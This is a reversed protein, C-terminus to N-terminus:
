SRAAQSRDSESRSDDGGRIQRHPVAERRATGLISDRPTSRGTRGGAHQHRIERVGTRTAATLSRLSASRQSSIRPDNGKAAAPPLRSSGGQARRAQYGRHYSANRRAPQGATGNSLAPHHPLFDGGPALCRGAEDPPNSVRRRM